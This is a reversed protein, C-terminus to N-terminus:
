IYLNKEMRVKEKRDLLIRSHIKPKLTRRKESARNSSVIKKTHTHTHIM